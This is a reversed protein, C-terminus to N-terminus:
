SEDESNQAPDAFSVENPTVVQPIWRGLELNADRLRRIIEGNAIHKCNWTVLYDLEYSVAFAFHPVDTEGHGKLGLRHSYEAILEVVDDTMDLVRLGDVLEMRRRAADPDGREIEELVTVSVVLEFRQAATKWWDHTTQQNGAFVKDSSPYATLYSPITTELYVSPM